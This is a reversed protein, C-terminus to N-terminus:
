SGSPPMLVSTTPPTRSNVRGGRVKHGAESSPPCLAPRVDRGAPHSCPTVSVQEDGRPGDASLCRQPPFQVDVWQRRIACPGLCAWPGGVCQCAWACGTPRGAQGRPHPRPHPGAPCVGGGTGAGPLIRGASWYLGRGPGAAEAM